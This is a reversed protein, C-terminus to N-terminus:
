DALALILSASLLSRAIAGAESRDVAIMVSRESVEIIRAHEAVRTAPGTSRGVTTIVESPAFLTVHDGVRVRPTAEDIPIAFGIEDNALLSAPGDTGSAALRVELITENRAIPRRVTRGIPTDAVGEPLVAVPRETFEIDADTIIRGPELDVRAVAVVRRQGWVAAADEASRITTASWVVAFVAVACTLAWRTRTRHLVRSALRTASARENLHRM